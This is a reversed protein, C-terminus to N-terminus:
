NAWALITLYLKELIEAVNGAGIKDADLGGTIM